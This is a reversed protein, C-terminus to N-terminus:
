KFYSKRVQDLNMARLEPPMRKLWEVVNIMPANCPNCPAPRPYGFAIVRVPVKVATVGGPIPLLPDADVRCEMGTTLAMIMKDAKDKSGTVIPRRLPMLQGPGIGAGIGAPPVATGQNTSHPPWFSLPGCDYKCETEEYTVRIVTNEAATSFLRPTYTELWAPYQKTDGSAVYAPLVQVGFYRIVFSQGEKTMAGNAFADTEALTLDAAFGQGNEGLGDAFINQVTGAALVLNGGSVAFDITGTSYRWPEAGNRTTAFWPDALGFGTANAMLAQGEPTLPYYEALPDDVPVLAIGDEEAM